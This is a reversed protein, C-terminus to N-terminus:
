PWFVKSDLNLIPSKWSSHLYHNIVKKEGEEEGGIGEGRTGRMGRRGSRESRGSM